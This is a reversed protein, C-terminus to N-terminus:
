HFLDRNRVRSYGAFHELRFFLDTVRTRAQDIVLQLRARDEPPMTKDVYLNASIEDMGFSTPFFVKVSEVGACGFIGLTLVAAFIFKSASENM